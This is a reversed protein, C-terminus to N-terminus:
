DRVSDDGLRIFVATVVVVVAQPTQCTKESEGTQRTQQPLSVIV